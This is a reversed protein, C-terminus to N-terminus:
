DNWLTLYVADVSFYMFLVYWLSCMQESIYFRWKHHRRNMAESTLACIWCKRMFVSGQSSWPPGVRAQKEQFLRVLLFLWHHENFQLKKWQELRYPSRSRESTHHSPIFIRWGSSFVWRLHRDWCKARLVVGSRLSGSQERENANNPAFLASISRQLTCKLKEILQESLTQSAASLPFVPSNNDACDLNDDEM